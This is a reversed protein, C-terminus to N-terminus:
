EGRVKYGTHQKVQSTDSLSEQRLMYPGGDFQLFFDPAVLVTGRFHIRGQRAPLNESCTLWAVM